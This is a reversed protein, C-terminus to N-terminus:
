RMWCTNMGFPGAPEVQLLAPPPEEAAIRQGTLTKSVGIFNFLRRSHSCGLEVVSGLGPNPSPRGFCTAM